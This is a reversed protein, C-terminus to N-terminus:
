GDVGIKFHGNLLGVPLPKRHDYSRYHSFFVEGSGGDQHTVTSLTWLGEDNPTMDIYYYTGVEFPHQEHFFLHCEGSPSCEWFRKNEESQKGRQMIPGLEIQWSKDWKQTIALCRFKARVPGKM